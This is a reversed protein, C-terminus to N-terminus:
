NKKWEIMKKIMDKISMTIKWNPYNKIQGEENHAPILVSLKM